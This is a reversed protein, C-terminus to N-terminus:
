EPPPPTDRTPSCIFKTILTQQTDNMKKSHMKTYYCIVKDLQQMMETISFSCNENDTIYEKFTDAGALIRSLKQMILEGPQPPAAVAKGERANELTDEISTM